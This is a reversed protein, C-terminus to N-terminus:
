QGKSTLGILQWSAKKISGTKSINCKEGNHVMGRWEVKWIEGTEPLLLCRRGRGQQIAGTHSTVACPGAGAGQGTVVASALEGRKRGGVQTTHCNARRRRQRWRRDPALYGGSMAPSLYMRNWHVPPALLCQMMVPPFGLHSSPSKRGSTSRWESWTISWYHLQM